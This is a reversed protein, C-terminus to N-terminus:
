ILDLVKVSDHWTVWSLFVSQWNPSVRLIGPVYINHGELMSSIQGAETDLVSEASWDFKAIQESSLHQVALRKLSERQERLKRLVMKRGYKCTWKALLDNLLFFQSCPIGLQLLPQLVEICLVHHCPHSMSEITTTTSRVKTEEFKLVSCGTAFFYAQGLEVLQTDLMNNKVITNVLLQLGKPWFVAMALTGVDGLTFPKELDKPNELLTVQLQDYDQTIIAAQTASSAYELSTLSIEPCAIFEFTRLVLRNLQKCEVITDSVDSEQALPIGVEVRDYCRYEVWHRIITSDM